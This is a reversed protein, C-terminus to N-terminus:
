SYRPLHSRIGLEDAPQHRTSTRSGGSAWSHSPFFAAQATITIKSKGSRLSRLKPLRTDTGCVKWCKIGIGSHMGVGWLISSSFRELVHRSRLFFSRSARKAPSVLRLTTPPAFAPLGLFVFGRQRPNLEGGLREGTNQLATCPIM